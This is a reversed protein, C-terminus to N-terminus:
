YIEELDIRAISVIQFQKWAVKVPSIRRCIYAKSTDSNNEYFILKADKKLGNLTWLEPENAVELAPWQFSGKWLLDGRNVVERGGSKFQNVTVREDTTYAYPYSPNATLTLLIDLSVVTGIRFYTASDVPTQAPIRIRMYRYNFASLTAYLDYRQTREDKSITFVQSFSYTIDDASGEIYVSTFNCDFLAVALLTKASTYDFVIKVETAVQSRWHRKTNGYLILNSAPYTSDESDATISPAIFDYGFVFNSM